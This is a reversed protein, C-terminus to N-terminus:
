YLDFTMKTMLKRVPKIHLLAFLLGAGSVNLILDDVDCVGCRLILQTTEVMIVVGATFLLFPIAKHMKRFLVPLFFAFPMFAVLNGGINILPKYFSIWGKSYGYILSSTSKFPIFNVSSSLYELFNEKTWRGEFQASNRGFYGDFFLFTILMTLYLIFMLVFSAKMRSKATERDKDKSGTYTGLYILVCGCLLLGARLFPSASAIWCYLYWLFLGSAAIYLFVSLYKIRVKEKM